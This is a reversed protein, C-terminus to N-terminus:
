ENIDGLRKKLEEEDWITIKLEKAKEYKSGPNDGLILVDTNKSVSEITKGGRITIEEKLRDRPMISITGTIVFKKDAFDEQKIIQKGLYNMNLGHEKLKNVLEINNEDEFYEVISKAMIDGIDSIAILDEYKANIILDISPYNKAIISAGKEGFHRIGLAFLLRELSNKKSEEIANLLNNISKEGIGELEM